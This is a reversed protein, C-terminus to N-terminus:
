FERRFLLQLISSIYLNISDRHVKAELERSEVYVSGVVGSFRLCEVFSIGARGEEMALLARGPARRDLESMVGEGMSLM